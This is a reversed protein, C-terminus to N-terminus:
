SDAAILYLPSAHLEGELQWADADAGKAWPPVVSWIWAQEERSDGQERPKRWNKSKLDTELNIEALIDSTTGDSLAILRDRNYNYLRALDRTRTTASSVQRQARTNDKQGRAYKRKDVLFAGQHNISEKVTMLLDHARGLRIRREFVAIAELGMTKREESTFDSPLGLPDEEPTGSADDDDDDIMEDDDDDDNTDPINFNSLISSQLESWKELERRLACREADAAPDDDMLDADTASRRKLRAHLEFRLKILELGTDM